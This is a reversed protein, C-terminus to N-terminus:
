EPAMLGAQGAPLREPLLCSLQFHGPINATPHDLTSAPEEPSEPLDSVIFESAFFADAAIRAPKGLPDAAIKIQRVNRAAESVLARQERGSYTVTFNHRCHRLNSQM